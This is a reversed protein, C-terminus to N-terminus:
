RVPSLSFTAQFWAKAGRDGRAGTTSQAVIGYHDLLTPTFRPTRRTRRTVATTPRPRHAIPPRPSSAWAGAGAGASGGGILMDSSGARRGNTHRDIPGALMPPRTSSMATTSLLVEIM